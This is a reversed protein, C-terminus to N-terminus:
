KRILQIIIKATDIEGKYLLSDKSTYMPDTEDVIPFKSTPIYILLNLFSIGLLSKRFFSYFEESILRFDPVQPECNTSDSVIRQFLWSFSSKGLGILQHEVSVSIASFLISEALLIKESFEALHNINIQGNM